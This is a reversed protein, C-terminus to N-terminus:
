SSAPRVSVQRNRWLTGLVVALVCLPALVLSLIVGAGYGHGHDPATAILVTAALAYFVLEVGIVTTRNAAFRALLVGGILPLLASM